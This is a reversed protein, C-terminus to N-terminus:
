SRSACGGSRRASWFLLSIALGMLLLRLGDYFAPHRHGFGVKFHTLMLGSALCLNGAAFIRRSRSDLQRHRLCM